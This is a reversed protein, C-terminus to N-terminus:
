TLCRALDPNLFSAGGQFRMKLSINEGTIRPFECGLVGAHWLVTHVDAPDVEFDANYSTSDMNVTKIATHHLANQVHDVVWYHAPGNAFFPLRSYMARGRLYNFEVAHLEHSHLPAFLLNSWAAGHPGMVVRARGFLQRVKLLPVAGPDLATFNYPPLLWKQIRKLISGRNSVKRGWRGFKSPRSMYIVQDYAAAPFRHLTTHAARLCGRGYILEAPNTGPPGLLISASQAAHYTTSSGLVLRVGPGLVESIILMVSRSVEADILMSLNTHMPLQLRAADHLMVAQPLFQTSMHGFQLAGQKLVMLHGHIVSVEGCHGSEVPNIGLWKPDGTLFSSVDSFCVGRACLNGNPSAVGQAVHVVRVSEAVDHGRMHNSYPRPRYSGQERAFRANLGVEGDFSTDWSYSAIFGPIEVTLAEGWKDLTSVTPRANGPFSFEVVTCDATPVGPLRPLASRDFEPTMAPYTLRRVRKCALPMESWTLSRLSSNKPARKLCESANSFAWGTVFRPPWDHLVSISANDLSRSRVWCQANSVKEPAPIRSPVEDWLACPGGNGSCQFASCSHFPEGESAERYSECFMRCEACSTREHIRSPQLGHCGEGLLGRPRYMARPRTAQSREKVLTATVCAAYGKKM